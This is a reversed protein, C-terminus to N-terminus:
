KLEGSPIPPPTVRAAIALDQSLFETRRAGLLADLQALDARTLGSLMKEFLRARVMDDSPSAKTGDAFTWTCRAEKRGNPPRGTYLNMNAGRFTRRLM